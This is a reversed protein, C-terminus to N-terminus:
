EALVVATASGTVMLMSASGNLGAILQHDLALGVLATAGIAHAEAKLEYLVNARAEALGRELTNSRGGFTNTLGALFDRGAGVGDVQQASV